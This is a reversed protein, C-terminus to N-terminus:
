ASNGARHRYGMSMQNSCARNTCRTKLADVAGASRRDRAYAETETIMLFQQQKSRLGCARRRSLRRRCCGRWATLWHPIRMLSVLHAGALEDAGLDHVGGVLGDTVDVVDDEGLIALNNSGDHSSTAGVTLLLGAAMSVARCLSALTMRLRALRSLLSGSRIMVCAMGGLLALSVANAVVIVADSRLFGYLLWLGLGAALLLLMKLSLDGTEGTKWCKRLQPIYSVTTCLAAAVGIATELYPM